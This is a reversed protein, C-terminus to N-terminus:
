IILKSDLRDLPFRKFCWRKERLKHKPRSVNHTNDLVDATNCGISSKEGILFIHILIFCVFLSTIEPIQMIQRLRGNDFFKAM